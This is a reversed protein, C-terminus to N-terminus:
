EFKRPFPPAPNLAANIPMVTNNMCLGKGPGDPGDIYEQLEEAGLGVRTEWVCFVPGEMNVPMFTHCHFGAALTKDLAAKMAVPDGMMEGAEKWFTPAKGVKFTHHVVYFTSM